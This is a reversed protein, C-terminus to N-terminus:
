EIKFILIIITIVLCVINLYYLPLLYKCFCQSSVGGEFLTGFSVNQFKKNLWIKTTSNLRSTCPQIGGTLCSLLSFLNHRGDSEPLFCQGCPVLPTFVPLQEPRKQTLHQKKLDWKKLQQEKVHWEKLQWAKLHEEM